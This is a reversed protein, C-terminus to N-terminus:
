NRIIFISQGGNPEFTLSKYIMKPHKKFEILSKIYEIASLPQDNWQDLYNVHLDEIIYTSGAWMLPFIFRFSAIQESRKHGGDDIVIDPYGTKSFIGSLFKLNKQNGVYIELDPSEEKWKPNIDIGIVKCGPFIDKWARLSDGKFVGIELLLKPKPALDVFHHQYFDTYKAKCIDPYKSFIESVKIM